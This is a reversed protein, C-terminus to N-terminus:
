KLNQKHVHRLRQIATFNAFLAVLWIAIKLAIPHIMAGLGIIVIREPRQMLGIHAEFGLSEARARTYSVMTSGSLALFVAIMSGHDHNFLFYVAIGFFMIFEAYRDVTSDLLAGFRTVNHTHRALTGDLMDCLGGLLILIGGWRIQGLSLVAAACATILAGLITVANPNINWRSLVKILPQSLGIFAQQIRQPILGGRTETKRRNNNESM